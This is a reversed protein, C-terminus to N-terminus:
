NQQSSGFFVNYSYVGFFITQNFNESNKSGWSFICNQEFVKFVRPLNEGLIGTGTRVRGIESFPNQKM